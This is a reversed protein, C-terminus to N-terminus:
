EPGSVQLEAQGETGRVDWTVDRLAGTPERKFCEWFKAM